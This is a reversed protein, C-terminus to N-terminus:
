LFSRIARRPSAGVRHRRHVACIMGLNPVAIAHVIRRLMRHQDTPGAQGGPEGSSPGRGSRVAPHHKGRSAEKGRGLRPSPSPLHTTSRAPAPRPDRDLLRAADINPSDLAAHWGPNALLRPLVSDGIVAARRGPANKAVQRQDCHAAAARVTEESAQFPEVTEVRGILDQGRGGLPDARSGRRWESFQASIGFGTAQRRAVSKLVAAPRGRLVDSTPNACSTISIPRAEPTGHVIWWRLEHVTAPGATM